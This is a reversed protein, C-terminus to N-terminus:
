FFLLIISPRPKCNISSVDWYGKPQVMLLRLHKLRTARLLEGSTHISAKVRLSVAKLNPLYDLAEPVARVTALVLTEIKTLWAEGANSQRKLFRGTAVDLRYGRDDSGLHLHKLNHM